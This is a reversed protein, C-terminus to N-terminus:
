AVNALVGPASERSENPFVYVREMLQGLDEDFESLYARVNSDTLRPAAQQVDRIFQLWGPMIANAVSLPRRVKGLFAILQTKREFLLDRGDIQDYLRVFSREARCAVLLEAIRPHRGEPTLRCAEPALAMADLEACLARIRRIAQRLGLRGDEWPEFIHTAIVEATLIGGTIDVIYHQKTLLTSLAIGNAWLLHARTREHPVHRAMMLALLFAHSVHISPFTNSPRDTARLSRWASDLSTDATAPIAPRPYTSPSKLFSRYAVLSNLFICAFVRLMRRFTGFDSVIMLCYPVFSLYLWLSRPRLPIETDASTLLRLSGLRASLRNVILYAFTEFEFFGMSIMLKFAHM